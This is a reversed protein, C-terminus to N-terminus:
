GTTAASLDRNERLPINATSFLSSEAGLLQHPSGAENHDVSWGDECRPLMQQSPYGTSKEMNVIFGLSTLLFVAINFNARAESQTEAMLLM